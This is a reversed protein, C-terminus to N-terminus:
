APRQTRSLGARVALYVLLGIPGAMLTLFLVPVMAWHPVGRRGADEIAWAGVWLDFALYHVWGVLVAEPRSFLAAVGALSTFGGGESMGGGVISGILLGAYTLALAVGIVRAVLVLRDRALPAFALAIWGLLAFLNAVDFLRDATM